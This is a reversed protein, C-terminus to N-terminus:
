WKARNGVFFIKRLFSLAKLEIKDRNKTLLFDHYYRCNMNYDFSFPLLQLPSVETVEAITPPLLEQQPQYGWCEEEMAACSLLIAVAVAWQQPLTNNMTM